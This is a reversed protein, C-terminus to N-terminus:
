GFCDHAWQVYDALGSELETAPRWGLATAASIDAEYGPPDGPRTMGSFTIQPASGPWVDRLLRLADGIRISRGSGGNVIPVAGSARTAAVQILRVADDIHLWDRFEEGSGFFSGDRRAFKQCADWFLQKRLGRGYVSFLRIITIRLAHERGYRICDQEIAFRAKGYPSIPRLPACEKIPLHTVNGYVAASSLMVIRANPSHRRAFELVEVAAGASNSFEAEPDIFSPGVLGSGACHVILDAPERLDELADRHIECSKWRHLGCKVLDDGIVGRGAGIVRHGRANFHRSVHRGIFGLAGTVLVTEGFLSTM